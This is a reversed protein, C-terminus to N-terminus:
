GVKSIDHLLRLTSISGIIGGVWRWTDQSEPAGLALGFGSVAGFISATVSVGSELVQFFTMPDAQAMVARPRRALTAPSPAGAPSWVAGGMMANDPRWRNPIPAGQMRVSGSQRVGKVATAPPTLVVPAALMSIDIVIKTVGLAATILGIGQWVKRPKVASSGLIKFAALGATAVAGGTILSSLIDAARGIDGLRKAPRGIQSRAPRWPSAVGPGRLHVARNLTNMM